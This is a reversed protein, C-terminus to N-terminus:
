AAREASFPGIRIVKSDAGFGQEADEMYHIFERTQMRLMRKIGDPLTELEQRVLGITPIATQIHIVIQETM